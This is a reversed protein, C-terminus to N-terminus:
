DGKMDRYQESELKDNIETKECLALRRNGDPNNCRFEYLSNGTLMMPGKKCTTCLSGKWM